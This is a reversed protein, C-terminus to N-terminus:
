PEDKLKVIYTSYKKHRRKEDFDESDSGHASEVEGDLSLGEPTSCENLDIMKPDKKKLTSSLGLTAVVGDSSAENERPLLVLTGDKEANDVGAM